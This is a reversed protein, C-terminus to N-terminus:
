GNVVEDGNVHIVETGPQKNQKAPTKQTKM